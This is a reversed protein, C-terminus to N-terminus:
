DHRFNIQISDFCFHWLHNHPKYSPLSSCALKRSDLRGDPQPSLQRKNLAEKQAAIRDCLGNRSIIRCVTRSSVPTAPTWEEQLQSATSMPRAKSLRVLLCYDRATTKRPRGSRPRDHVDGTEQYRKHIREVQRKSVNFIDAVEAPSKSKLRSSWCKPEQKIKPMNVSATNLM